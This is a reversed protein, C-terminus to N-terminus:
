ILIFVLGTILGIFILISLISSTDLGVVPSLIPFLITKNIKLKVIVMYVKLM